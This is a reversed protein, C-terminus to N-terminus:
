AVRELATVRGYLAEYESVMRQATFRTCATQYARNAYASRTRFDCSLRQITKALDKRDNRRFYCAADGWIEHFAPIDNAVLACGSLAAELPALGFPEYCSPAAYIAAESFLKALQPPSNAVPAGAGIEEGVDAKGPERSSGFIRVPVGYDRQQLLSTQKAADWLRGVTLVFNKKPANPNFFEPSRGNYVVSGFSPRLYYTRVADLMWHSPAVVVDAGRLGSTVTERYWRTWATEGPEKGHVGVWWSVVDSHAVLVKPLETHVNGYCYQNFHLLDPQVEQIIRELYATSDEIDQEPDQMWELRFDTPWYSIGSLGAMWQIQEPRPYAGFSVLTVRHGRRLLGTVLEQAYTWVGGVTDATILIHM